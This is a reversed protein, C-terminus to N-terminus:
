LTYESLLRLAIPYASELAVIASLDAVSRRHLSAATDRFELVKGQFEVSRDRVDMGWLAASLEAFYVEKQVHVARASILPKWVPACAKLAAQMSVLWADEGEEM